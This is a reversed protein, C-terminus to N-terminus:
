IDNAFIIVAFFEELFNNDLILWNIITEKTNSIGSIDFQSIIKKILKLAMISNENKILKEELCNKLINKKDPDFDLVSVIEAYKNLAKECIALSVDKRFAIGFLVNALKIIQEMNNTEYRTPEYIVDLAEECLETPGLLAIKQVFYDLEQSKLPFSIESLIKFVDPRLQEDKTYEWILDLDNPNKLKIKENLFKVVPGSRQLIQQHKHPGFLDNLINNKELWDALLDQNIVRSFGFKVNKCIDNIAKIGQIRRQLYQSKLVIANMNLQFNEIIKYREHVTYVRQLLTDLNKCIRDFQEKEIKRIEQEPCTLLYNIMAQQLKPIYDQAFKRHLM